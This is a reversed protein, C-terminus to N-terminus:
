LFLKQSLMRKVDEFKFLGTNLIWLLSEARNSYPSPINLHIFYEPLYLSVSFFTFLCMALQNVSFPFSSMLM